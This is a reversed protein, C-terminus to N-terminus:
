EVSMIKDKDNVYQSDCQNDACYHCNPSASHDMNGGFVTQKEISSLQNLEQLKSEQLSSRKLSNLKLKKM